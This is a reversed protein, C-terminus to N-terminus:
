KERFARRIQDMLPKMLYSIPTRDTTKIQVEAPMGPKLALGGLKALEAAPLAIRTMFYSAGTRADKSLDAAVRLVRGQIEPTTRQNFAPFRVFAAQGQRISDIDNPSIMAEVVLADQRPVILMLTDGRGVVGGVTHVALEHVTGAQPSRIEVRRLQDEAAVLRERLENERAQVDRYEKTVETRLDVDLQIIQLEIEAIRGRARASAAVLQAQEGRLRASDRELSMLRISPVLQKKRLEYLGKLERSILKIETAKADAQAVLGAIEERLQSIRKGLQAKQGQRAKRRSEFLASEASIITKVAPENARALLAPSLVMTPTQDREAVIRAKRVAAEDLQGRVTELTARIVNDDLRVLLDGAAVRAGDRVLIQGVVGGTPHQVKKVNSDVVVTGNGIVAGAINSTAAWGGLGGFVVAITIFGAVSFAMLRDSLLKAGSPLSGKAPAAAVKEERNTM